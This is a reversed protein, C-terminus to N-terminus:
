DRARVFAATFSAALEASYVGTIHHNDMWAITHDIVAPCARRFCVFGRTPLFGVGLRKAARAIADYASLASPLWTTTCSSMSAHAMVVCQPANFTLGEPDGIVVLPGFPRLTKVAAIMGGVSADRIPSPLEEISGSILTVSPHLQQIEHTAWRFWRRCSDPGVRTFWKRPTCGFRLLPVVDWGDRWAMETIAPLWMWAHSDGFLVLRQTSSVQGVHCVESTVKRSSGHGSCGFPIRYKKPAFRITAIPPKLDKPIPAGNRAANVAAVVAPLAAASSQSRRSQAAAGGTTALLTGAGLVAVAEAVRGPM